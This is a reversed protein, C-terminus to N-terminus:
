HVPASKKTFEAHGTTLVSNRHPSFKRNATPGGTTASVTLIALMWANSAHRRM